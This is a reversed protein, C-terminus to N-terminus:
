LGGKIKKDIETKINAIRTMILGLLFLGFIFLSIKITSALTFSFKFHSSFVIGALGGGLVMLAAWLRNMHAFLYELQKGEKKDM